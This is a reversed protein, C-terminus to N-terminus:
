LNFLNEKGSYGLFCIKGFVNAVFGLSEIRNLESSLCSWLDASVIKFYNIAM